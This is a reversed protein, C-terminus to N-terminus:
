GSVICRVGVLGHGPSVRAKIADGARDVIVIFAGAVRDGSEAAEDGRLTDKARRERRGWSVDCARVGRRSRMRGFTGRRSRSGAMPKHFAPWPTQPAEPQSASSGAPRAGALCIARGHAELSAEFHLSLRYLQHSPSLSTPQPPEIIRADYLWCRSLALYPPIAFRKMSSRV